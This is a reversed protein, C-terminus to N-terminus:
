AIWGWLLAIVFLGVLSAVFLLAGAFRVAAEWVDVPTPIDPESM